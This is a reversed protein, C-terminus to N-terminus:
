SRRWTQSSDLPSRSDEEKNPEGDVLCVPSGLSQKSVARTGDWGEGEVMWPHHHLPHNFLSSRNTKLRTEGDVKVHMQRYREQERSLDGKSCENVM